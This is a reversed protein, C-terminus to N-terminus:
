SAYAGNFMSDAATDVEKGLRAREAAVSTVFRYSNLEEGRCPSVRSVYLRTEGPLTLIKELTATSAAGAALANGVFVAGEFRYSVADGARTPTELVRACVGGLCIKDGGVVVRDYSKLHRSGTVTSACVFRKKLRSLQDDNLNEGPLPLHTELIWRVTLGSAEVWEQILDTNDDGVPDIIACTQTHPDTVVYSCVGTSFDFFPVVCQSM